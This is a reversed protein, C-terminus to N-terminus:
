SKKYEFKSVGFKQIESICNVNWITILISIILFLKSNDVSIWLNLSKPFIFGPFWLSAPPRALICLHHSAHTKKKPLSFFAKKWNKKSLSFVSNKLDLVTNNRFGGGPTLKPTRNAFRELYNRFCWLVKRHGRFSM